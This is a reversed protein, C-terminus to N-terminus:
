STDASCTPPPNFELGWGGETHFCHEGGRSHHPTSYMFKQKHYYYHVPSVVRALVHTSIFPHYLPHNPLSTRSNVRLGKVDGSAVRRVGVPREQSQPMCGGPVVILTPAHQLLVEVTVEPDNALIM